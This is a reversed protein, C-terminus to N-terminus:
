PRPGACVEGVPPDADDPVAGPPRKGGTDCSRPPGPQRVMPEPLPPGLAHRAAGAGRAVRLRLPAGVPVRRGASRSQVVRVRGRVTGRDVGLVRRGAPVGEGLLTGRGTTPPPQGLVGPRLLAEPLLSCPEACRVSAARVHRLRGRGSVGVNARIQYAATARKGGRFAQKCPTPGCDRGGYKVMGTDCRVRVSVTWGLHQAAATVMAQWDRERM